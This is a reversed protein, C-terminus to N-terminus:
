EIGILKIINNDNIYNLTSIYNENNRSITVRFQFFTQELQPVDQQYNWGFLSVSKIVGITSDQKYMQVKIQEQEIKSFSSNIFFTEFDYKSLAKIDADLESKFSKLEILINKPYVRSFSLDGGNNLEFTVNSTYNSETLESLDTFLFSLRTLYGDALQLSKFDQNPTITLDLFSTGNAVDEGKFSEIKCKTKLEIDTIIQEEKNTLGGSCSTLIFVLTILTLYNKM